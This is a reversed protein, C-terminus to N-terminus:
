APLVHVALRPLRTSGMREVAPLNQVPLLTAREPDSSHAPSSGCCVWGPPEILELGLSEKVPRISRDYERATSHVLM